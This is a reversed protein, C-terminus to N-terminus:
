FFFFNFGGILSEGEDSLFYLVFCFQKHGRSLQFVLPLPSRTGLEKSGKEPSELSAM